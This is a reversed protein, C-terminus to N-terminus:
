SGAPKKLIDDFTVVDHQTVNNNEDVTIHVFIEADTNELALVREKEARILFGEAELESKIRDSGSGSSIIERVRSVLRQQEDTNVAM